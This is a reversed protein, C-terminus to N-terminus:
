DSARGGRSELLASLRAIAVDLTGLRNRIDEMLAETRAQREMMPGVREQIMKEVDARTVLTRAFVFWAASSGILGAVASPIVSSLDMSQM